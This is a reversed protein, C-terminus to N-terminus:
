LKTALMRQCFRSVGALIQDATKTWIFPKPDANSAHIYAEIAQELQATSRHSGRRLADQTLNAFWREVLNLWSSYTPVFHMHFRPHKRLWRKVTPAGHISSNDVVLHVHLDAPIAEDVTTLFRRFESARKRPYCQGIVKGTVHDLAAFLNTTGHRVYTHTHQVCQGFDLPLLPQSRELAQIASKEDLCLVVAHDPPSMYLGVIDRVKEVFFDDTSLTFTDQRHPKLKFARWLRSVSSRSVGSRKAMKRTSWHTSGAPLAELTARILGEVKEDSLKRHVNPRPTDSLGDIGLKVFRKRWKGVTHDIVGIERAVVSNSKGEACALVIRARQALAQSVTRGRVYRELEERQEASVTLEAKPRGTRGKHKKTAM